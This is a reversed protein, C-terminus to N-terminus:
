KFQWISNSCRAISHSARSCSPMMYSCVTSSWLVFCFNLSAGGNAALASSVGDFFSLAVLNKNGLIGRSAIGNDLNISVLLNSAKSFNAM